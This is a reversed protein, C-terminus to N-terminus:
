VRRLPHKQIQSLTKSYTRTQYPIYVEANAMTGTTGSEILPKRYLLCKSDVYRRAQVNDLANWTGDLGGWFEDNFQDETKSWVKLKLARVNLLPNMEKAADSASTSKSTGIHQSRFLFQRSLNSLEISDNDTVIIQGGAGAGIGMMAMGKLYECGLAGAQV